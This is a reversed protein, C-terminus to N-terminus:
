CRGRSPTGNQWERALTSPTVTDCFRENFTAIMPAPMDPSHMATLSCSAPMSVNVIKSFASSTPPVQRSLV